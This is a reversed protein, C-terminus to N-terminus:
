GNSSNPSNESSCHEICRDLAAIVEEHKREPLDNWTTLSNSILINAVKIAGRLHGGESATYLADLLCRQTMGTTDDVRKFHFKCWKDPTEVLKKARKFLEAIENM